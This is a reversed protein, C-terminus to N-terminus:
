KGMVSHIKKMSGVLERIYATMTVGKENAMRSIFDHETKTFKVLLPKKEAKVM